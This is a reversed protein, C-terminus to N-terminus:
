QWPTQLVLGLSASVLLLSERLAPEGHVMFASRRPMASLEVGTCVGLWPLLAVEVGFGVGLGLSVGREESGLPAYHARQVVARAHMSPLLRVRGFPLAAGVRLAMDWRWVSIREQEALEREVHAPGALELAFGPRARPTRPALFWLGLALKPRVIWRTTYARAFDASLQAAFDLTRRPAPPAASSTPAQAPKPQDLALLESAVFAVLYPTPDGEILRTRVSGDREIVRVCRQASDLVLARAAGSERLTRQAVAPDRAEASQVRRSPGPALQPLLLAAAEDAASVLLVLLEASAPAPAQASARWPWLGLGLALAVFTLFVKM